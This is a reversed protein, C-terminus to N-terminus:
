SMESFNSIIIIICIISASYVGALIDDLMVGLSNNKKDAWRVPWPKWIDFIRFLILAVLWGVWSNPFISLDFLWVYLSIPLYTVWQGVVEDIVVEQPDHTLTNKSLYQNTLAWGLLFFITTFCVLLPFGGFLQIWYGTMVAAVSGFTGPAYPLFGIHFFTVIFKVM